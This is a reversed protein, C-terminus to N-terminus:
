ATYIAKSLYAARITCETVIPTGGPIDSESPYPPAIVKGGTTTIMWYGNTKGRPYWRFDMSGGGATEFSEILEKTGYSAAPEFVLRITVTVPERKGFHVLPTDGEATYEEGSQRGGGSVSVSALACSIETESAFDDDSMELDVDVWSYGPAQTM